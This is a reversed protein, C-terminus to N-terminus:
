ARSFKSLILKICQLHSDASNMSVISMKKSSMREIVVTKSRSTKGMTSQLLRERLYMEFPVTRGQKVLKYDEKLQLEDDISIKLNHRVSLKESEPKPPRGGKGRKKTSNNEM